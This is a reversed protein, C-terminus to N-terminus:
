CVPTSHLPLHLQLQLKFQFQFELQPGVQLQLGTKKINEASAIIKHRWRKFHRFNPETILHFDVAVLAQGGLWSLPSMDRSSYVFDIQNQPKRPLVHSMQAGLVSFRRGVLLLKCELVYLDCIFGIRRVTSFPGTYGLQM